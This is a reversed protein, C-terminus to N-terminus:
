LVKITVPGLVKARCSLRVPIQPNTEFKERISKVTDAEVVSMPSLNEAGELVEIKCSGCSGALCGFPLETGLNQLGDFLKQEIEVQFEQTSDQNKKPWNKLKVLATPM